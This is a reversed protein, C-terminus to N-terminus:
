SKEIKQLVEALIQGKPRKESIKLGLLQALELLYNKTLTRKYIIGKRRAKADLVDKIRFRLNFVRRTHEELVETGSWASPRHQKLWERDEPTLQKQLWHWIKQLVEKRMTM